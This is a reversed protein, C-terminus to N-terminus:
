KIIIIINNINDKIIKFITKISNTFLNPVFWIVLSNMSFSYYFNNLM